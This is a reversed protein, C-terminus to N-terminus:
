VLTTVNTVNKPHCRDYKLSQQFILHCLCVVYGSLNALIDNWNVQQQTLLQMAPEMEAGLEASGDQLAQVLGRYFFNATLTPLGNIDLRVFCYSTTSGRYLDM